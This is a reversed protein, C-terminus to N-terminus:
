HGCFNTATEVAEARQIVEVTLSTFLSPALAFIKVDRNVGDIRQALSILLGAISEKWVPCKDDSVTATLTAVRRVCNLASQPGSPTM